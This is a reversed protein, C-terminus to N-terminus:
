FIKTLLIKSFSKSLICFCTGKNYCHVTADHNNGCGVEKTINWGTNTCQFISTEFGLCRMDSMFITSKYRKKLSRQFSGGIYGLQKCIIDVDGYDWDEVCLSGRQGDYIIEVAGDNKDGGVLHLTLDTLLSSIYLLRHIHIVSTQFPPLVLFLFNFVNGSFLSKTM